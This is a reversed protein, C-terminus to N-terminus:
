AGRLRAGALHTLSAVVLGGGAAYPSLEPSLWLFGFTPLFGLPLVYRWRARGTAHLWVYGPAGILAAPGAGLILTFFFLLRTASWPGFLDSSGHHRADWAGFAALARKGLDAVDDRPIPRAGPAHLFQFLEVARQAGAVLHHHFLRRGTRRPWAWSM